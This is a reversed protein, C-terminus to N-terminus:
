CATAHARDPTTRAPYHRAMPADRQATGRAQFLTAQTGQARTERAFSPHRAIRSAACALNPAARALRSAARVPHPEARMPRQPARANIRHERSFQSTRCM